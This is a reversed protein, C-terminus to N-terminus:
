WCYFISELRVSDLFRGSYSFVLVFHDKQVIICWCVGCFRDLLQQFRKTLQNKRMRSVKWVKSWRIVVQGSRHGISQIPRLEPVPIATQYKRGQYTVESDLLRFTLAFRKTSINKKTPQKWKASLVALRVSLALKEMVAPQQRSRCFAMQAKSVVGYFLPCFTLANCVIILGNRYRFDMSFYSKM